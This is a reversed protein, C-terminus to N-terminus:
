EARWGPAVPPRLGVSLALYEPSEPDLFGHRILFDIVVLNCNPKFDDSDRVVAAVEAVPLLAYEQMEGDACRPRFDAPLELDYCYLTDPKYGKENEANYTIAGVPRARAALEPGLGAEEACEKLLNQRLSLGWPLGGAALNDLRGPFNVRDAARRGIWLRLGDGDRVWGNLHQGFARLGFYPAAARDILAVAQDRAGPTVPYPEGHLRSILGAELLAATIERFRASLAEFGAAPAQLRVGDADHQFWHPWARLGQAFALRLRGVAQDAVFFPVFGAPDHNNCARIHRLFGSM